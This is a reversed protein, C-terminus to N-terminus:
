VLCVATVGSAIGCILSIIGGVLYKGDDYKTAVLVAGLLLLVVAILGAIAISINKALGMYEIDLRSLKVLM